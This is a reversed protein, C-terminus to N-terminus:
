DFLEAALSKIEANMEDIIERQEATYPKIEDQEIDDLTYGYEEMTDPGKQEHANGGSNNEKQSKIIGYKVSYTLLNKLFLQVIYARKKQAIQM